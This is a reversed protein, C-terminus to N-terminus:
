SMSEYLRLDQELRMESPNGELALRGFHIAEDKRKLHFSSLAILDFMYWDWYFDRTYHSQLKNHTEIQIAFKFCSSWDERMFAMHALFGKPEFFLPSSRLARDAWDLAWDFYGLECAAEASWLYSASRELNWPCWIALAKSGITLVDHWRQNLFHEHQLQHLATWYNPVEVVIQELIALNSQLGARRKEWHLLDIPFDFDETWDDIHVFGIEREFGDSLDLNLEELMKFYLFWGGSVNAIKQDILEEIWRQLKPKASANFSLAFIEKYPKGTISSKRKRLYFTIEQDDNVISDIAEDTFYVDGFALVTREDGWFENSSKFKAMDLWRPDQEPTFVKVSSFNETLNKAVMVIDSTHQSFQRIQREILTEGEVTTHHKTTGRFNEWRTGDGAALIVIRNQM